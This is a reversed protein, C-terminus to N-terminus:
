FSLSSDEIVNFLHGQDGVAISYQINVISSQHGRLFDGFSDSGRIRSDMFPQNEQIGANAPIVIVPAKQSKVHADLNVTM